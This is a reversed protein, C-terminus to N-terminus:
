WAEQDPLHDGVPASTGCDGCTVRSPFVSSCISCREGPTGVGLCNEEVCLVALVGTALRTVSTPEGCSPCEGRQGSQLEDEGRMKRSVERARDSEIETGTAGLMMQPYWLLHLLVWVLLSGTFFYLPRYIWNNNEGRFAISHAGFWSNLLAILVWGVLIAAWAELSHDRRSDAMIRPDPHNHQTEVHLDRTQVVAQWTNFALFGLVGLGAFLGFFDRPQARLPFSPASSHSVLVGAELIVLGILLYLSKERMLPFETLIRIIFLVWLALSTVMMAFAQWQVNNLGELGVRWIDGGSSLEGSGLDSSSTLFALCGIVLTILLRPSWTERVKRYHFSFEVKLNHLPELWPQKISMRQEIKLKSLRLGIHMAEGEIQTTKNNSLSIESEIESPLPSTSSDGDVSALEEEMHRRPKVALYSPMGRSTQKIAIKQNTKDGYIRNLYPKKPNKFDGFDPKNSQLKKISKM